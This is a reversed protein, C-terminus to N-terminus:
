QRRRALVTSIFGYKIRYVDNNKLEFSGHKNLGNMHEAERTKRLKESSNTDHIFNGMYFKNLKRKTCTDDQVAMLTATQLGKSIQLCKFLNEESYKLRIQM